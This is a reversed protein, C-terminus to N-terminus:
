PERYTANQYKVIAQWAKQWEGKRALLESELFYVAPPPKAVTSFTEINALAGDLDNADIQSVVVALGDNAIDHTARFRLSLTQTSDNAQVNPLRPRPVFRHVTEYAPRFDGYNALATALEQWGVTQWDPHRQLAEVLALQDGERLWSAFLIKQESSSLSRLDPDDTLLRNLEVTFELQNANQLLVPLCRRNIHGLERWRDRLEVNDRVAGFIDSYLVRANEPWRQMSEQWVAFALDEDGVSLWVLGQKLAIDPRNPMLYRAVAFDREIDSRPRYSAAEALGRQYYLEWNLPAIALGKESLSIAGPYNRASNEIEAQDVLRNVTDSTPTALGLVSLLLFGGVVLFLMGFIRFMLPRATRFKAQPSIAISALFLAPWIAGIRHGSVDVLGHIAFLCGCVMAAMRTARLTGSKFPFCSRLWIGIVALLLLPGLAGMEVAVWLWDSEPHIAEAPSIFYHRQSSFLSRFNGLGVGFFPSQKFFNWTDHYIAIRGNRSLLDANEGIFRAVLRPGSWVLAAGLLVVAILLIAPFRKQDSSAIWWLHWVVAGVFFLIVGGRSGNIILAWVILCLSLMWLWWNKRGRQWGQMAIAYIMVGGLGFVNGTQNRNPFFGFGGTEPWFPVRKNLTSAITLTAALVLIGVCFLGLTKQRRQLNWDSSFLYCTWALGLALLCISEFTLWPQPSLTLPFKVGLESLDSRWPPSGFFHAPIFATLAVAFIALFLLDLSRRSHAPPFLLLTLGAGIAILAKAWLATSGALVPALITLSVIAFPALM